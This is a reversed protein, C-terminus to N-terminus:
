ALARYFPALSKKEDVIAVPATDDDISPVVFGDREAQAIPGRAPQALEPRLPQQLESRTRTEEELVASGAPAEAASAALPPASATAQPAPTPASFSPLRSVVAWLVALVLAARVPKSGFVSLATGARGE